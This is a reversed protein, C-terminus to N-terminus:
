AARKGFGPHPMLATLVAEIRRGGDKGKNARLAFTASYLGPKTNGVLDRPLPLVGVEVVEGADSVLICECDQIRYPNGSAKATGERLDNVKIIQIISTFPRLSPQATQTEAM